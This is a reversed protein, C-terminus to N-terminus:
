PRLFAPVASPQIVHLHARDDPEAMGALHQASTDTLSLPAPTVVVLRFRTFGASDRAQVGAELLIRVQEALQNGRNSTKHIAILLRGGIDIAYDVSLGPFSGPRREIQISSFVEDPCGCGLGDRVFEVLAQVDGQALDFMTGVAERTKPTVPRNLQDALTQIRALAAQVVGEQLMTYWYGDCFREGRACHNLLARVEPYSAVPILGPDAALRQPQLRQYDPDMWPSTGVLMFFAVV